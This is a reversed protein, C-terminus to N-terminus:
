SCKLIKLKSCKLIKLKTQTKLHYNTLLHKLQDFTTKTMAIIRKIEVGCKGNWVLMSRLYCFHNEWQVGCEEM